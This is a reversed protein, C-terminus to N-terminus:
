SNMPDNRSKFSEMDVAYPGLVEFSSNDHAYYEKDIVHDFRADNDHEHDNSDEAHASPLAPAKETSAATPLEYQYQHQQQQDQYYGDSPKYASSTTTVVIPAVAAGKGVNLGAAGFVATSSGASASSMSSRSEDTTMSVRGGERYRGGGGGARDYGQISDVSIDLAGDGLTASTGLDLELRPTLHHLQPDSYNSVHAHDSLDSDSHIAAESSTDEYTDENQMAAAQPLPPPPILLHDSSNSAVGGSKSRLLEQKLIRITNDKQAVLSELEHVRIKLYKITDESSDELDLPTAAPTALEPYGTASPFRIEEEEDSSDYPRAPAAAPGGRTVFEHSLREHLALTGAGDEFQGAANTRTSSANSLPGTHIPASPAPSGSRALNRLDLTQFFKRRKKKQQAPPKSPAATTDGLNLNRLSATASREMEDSLSRNSGPGGTGQVFGRLSDAFSAKRKVGSPPKWAQEAAKRDNNTLVASRNRRHRSLLDPKKFTGGFPSKSKSGTYANLLSGSSSEQSLNSHVYFSASSASRQRGGAGHAVAPAVASTPTPATAAFHTIPPGPKEKSPQSSSSSSTWAKMSSVMKKFPM